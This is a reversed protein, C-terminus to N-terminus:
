SIFCYSFMHPLMSVYSTGLFLGSLFCVLLKRTVPVCGVPFVGQNQGPLRLVCSTLEGGDPCSQWVVRLFGQVAKEDM